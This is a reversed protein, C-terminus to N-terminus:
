ALHKYLVEAGAVLVVLATVRRVVLLNFKVIGVNSGIQGGLLVALALIFLMQYNVSPANSLQGAIGALSNVLIFVSATGAIQKATGWATLNLIPSLFIGGGIGVLGSLFGVAGGIAPQKYYSVKQESKVAPSKIWLLMAAIILSVGLIIFFTDEHLKLKAGFFALPISTIVLPWVKKWQIQKHRMFAIMGGTVVIINCVLAVLRMEEFPIGFLTLIALYSSGGGFGVSSYIMAILFFIVALEIYV